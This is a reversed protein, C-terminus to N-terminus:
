NKVVVVVIKPGKREDNRPQSTAFQARTEPCTCLADIREAMTKSLPVSRAIVPIRLM